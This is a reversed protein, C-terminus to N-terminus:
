KGLSGSADTAAKPNALLALRALTLGTVTMRSWFRDRPGRFTAAFAPAAAALGIALAAELRRDSARPETAWWGGGALTWGRRALRSSNV